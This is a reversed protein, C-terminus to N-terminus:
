GPDLEAGLAYEHEMRRLSGLAPRESVPAVILVPPLGADIRSRHRGRYLIFEGDERLTQLLYESLEM